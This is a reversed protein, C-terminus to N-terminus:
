HHHGTNKVLIWLHDGAIQVFVKLILGFDTTSDQSSSCHHLGMIQLLFWYSQGSVLLDASCAFHVTDLRNAAMTALLPVPLSILFPIVQINNLYSM